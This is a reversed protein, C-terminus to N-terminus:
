GTLEMRTKCDLAFFPCYYIIGVQKYLIVYAMEYFSVVM